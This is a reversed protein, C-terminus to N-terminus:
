RGAALPLTYTVEQDQPEAEPVDLTLDEPLSGTLSAPPPTVHSGDAPAKTAAADSPTESEVRARQTTPIPLSTVKAVTAPAAAQARKPLAELRGHIQAGRHAEIEGYTILHASIQATPLAELVMAAHIGKPNAADDNATAAITGAVVIRSAYIPGSVLGGEAIVVTGESHVGDRVEGLILLGRGNRTSISGEVVTDEDIATMIQDADTIRLQENTIPKSSETIQAM